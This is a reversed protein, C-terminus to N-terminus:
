TMKLIDNVIKRNDTIFYPLKKATAIRQKNAKAWERFVPPMEKVSNVSRGSVRKGAMILAEDRDMEEETKLIATMQCLCNPHWGTFRFNKPYDGQLEDCIDYVPHAASLTIRVGVVFDFKDWRLQDATHYAANIETRAVRMANKYSSRYVGAGPHYEEAAKSLKLRGESDRVRRFLKFPEKLYQRLDRSMQAASKGESLGLGIASEVQKLVEGQRWVGASLMEIKGTRTQLFATLAKDNNSLYSLQKSKPLKKFRSGFVKYVLADNIGNAVAWSSEVGDLVTTRIQAGTEDILEEIQRKATPYKNLSFEAGDPVDLRIGIKAAETAATKYIEEIRRQVRAVLARNTQFKKAM